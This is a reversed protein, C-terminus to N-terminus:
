FCSPVCMSAIRLPRAETRTSSRMLKSHHLLRLQNADQSGRLGGILPLLQM